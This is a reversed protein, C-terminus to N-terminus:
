AVRKAPPLQSGPMNTKENNELAANIGHNWDEENIKFDMIAAYQRAPRTEETNETQPFSVYRM